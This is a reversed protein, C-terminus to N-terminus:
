HYNINQYSIISIKTLFKVQVRDDIIYKFQIWKKQINDTNLLLIKNSLKISRHHVAPYGIMDILKM